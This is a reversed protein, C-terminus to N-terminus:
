RTNFFFKQNLARKKKKVWAKNITGLMLSQCFLYYLITYNEFHEISMTYIHKKNSFRRAIKIFASQGVVPFIGEGM